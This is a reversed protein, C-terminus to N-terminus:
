APCPCSSRKRAWTPLKPGDFVWALRIRRLAASMVLPGGVGVVVGVAVLLAVSHVGVHVLVIRSGSAMIIHALFIDLSHRGGYALFGSSRVARAFLLLGASMAVSLVAGLVVTSM